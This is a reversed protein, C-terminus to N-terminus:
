RGEFAVKFYMQATICLLFRSHLFMKHLNHTTTTAVAGSLMVLM